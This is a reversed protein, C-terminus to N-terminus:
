PRSFRRPPLALVGRWRSLPSRRVTLARRLARRDAATPSPVTGPSFRAARLVAPYRAASPGAARMLRRELSLLTTGSSVPWGLRELAERLEAVQAEVRDGGRRRGAAMRSLALAGALLALVGVAGLASEWWSLSGGPPQAGKAQLPREHGAPAAAPDPRRSPDGGGGGPAGLGTSQSGAPAAAPTPDFRVWGIGNFYVEVWSHADLDRVRWEHTTRNLSGPTFGAAVRAPIGAMRLMLAMAGSFQQCYGYRDEFLFASLPFDHEPTNENYTYNRQLYGDIAQVADYTTPAGATLRRALGYMRAYPSARLRREAEAAGGAPGGRLPVVVRRRKPRAAGPAGEAPPASRASDDRSPLFVETYESLEEPAGRPARRMVRVSPHPVYARVVYSDGRELPDQLSLTTGDGGIAVGGAGRVEHTTGAGVVVESTLSAVTFRIREDWRPNYAFYSWHRRPRAVTAPLEGFPSRGDNANSHLWRFGDFRDLTEAKWYEPRDARVYLLTNGSRPWDLRGYSHTWEFVVRKGSGFWNWDRYNWWPKDADFRAALPLSCLGVALVLGAGTAAERPRLRPLWLWAAILALLVLGRLLPEGPNTNTVATGYVLLLLVLAGVSPGARRGRRPWFGAAAALGLLLPLGLLLVQRVWDEPGSYPWSATRLGSLGRSVGDVLDGFGAPLLLRAPLGAVLFGAALGALSVGGALAAVLGRGLRLRGLLGLGAATVAAVAVLAVMRAGGPDLVLGAWHGAGWAALATFAILRLVLSDHQELEASGGERPPVAAGPASASAARTAPPRTAVSM